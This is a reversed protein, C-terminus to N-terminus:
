GHNDGHHPIRDNGTEEAQGRTRGLSVFSGSGHISFGIQVPDPLCHVRGIPIELTVCGRSSRDRREPCNEGSRGPETNNLAVLNRIQRRREFLFLAVTKYGTGLAAETGCYLLGFIAFFTVIRKSNQKTATSARQSVEQTSATRESGLCLALLASFVGAATM